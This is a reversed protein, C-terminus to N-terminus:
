DNGESGSEGDGGCDGVETPPNVTPVVVQASSQSGAGTQGDNTEGDASDGDQSDDEQGASCMAGEGEAADDVVTTGASFLRVLGLSRDVGSGRVRLTTQMTATRPFVMPLEVGSDLDRVVIRYTARAPLSLRFSGDAAVTAQQTRGLRDTAVAVARVAVASDLSGALAVSGASTSSGNCAAVSLALIGALGLRQM